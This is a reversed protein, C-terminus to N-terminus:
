CGAYITPQSHMSQAETTICQVYFDYLDQCTKLEVEVSAFMSSVSLVIMVGVQIPVSLPEVSNSDNLLNQISKPDIFSVPIRPYFLM